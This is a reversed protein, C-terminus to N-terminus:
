DVEEVHRPRLLELVQEGVARAQEENTRQVVQRVREMGEVRLLRERGSEVSAVCGVAVLGRHLCGEDEDEMLALLREVGGERDLVNRVGEEAAVISAIAGGAASRTAVDESDALALLIHIRRRADPTSLTFLEAGARSTTLNCCLQTAARSIMSHNSLLLDEIQPTILRTTQEATQTDPTSALNTLALLSEFTPLLDRPASSMSANLAEPPPALLTLLPRITSSLPPSGSPPFILAPDVSILIRALAHSATHRCLRDQPTNGAISTYIQLLLKAAGQQALRGRNKPNLSLSLLISLMLSTSAASFTKHSSVLVLVLSTSAAIIACRTTVAAESNYLSEQAVSPSANAYAKLQAMKKQEESLTPLYRTLNDFITLIGFTVTSNQPSSKSAENNTRLRQILAQLFKTDKVLQEKVEPHSSSYALGEISADQSTLNPNLTMQKLKEVLDGDQQRVKGENAASQAPAQLKALIVAALGANREKGHKIVGQLSQTCHTQIAQRCATDLCAASLMELAAQEVRESKNKKQLLPALSPVFGEILFFSSAISPVLPFVASAASFALVLDENKQRAIRTQIFSLLIKQGDTQSAELYKATAMTAQSRVEIPLRHDLSSLIADFTEEDVLSHLKEADTALLRAIGKLAKGDHDHGVELLKALFLQFVDREATERDAERSWTAADLVITALCNASSDGLEYFEEFVVTASESLRQALVKRAGM